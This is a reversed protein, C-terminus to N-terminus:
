RCRWTAACRCTARAAHRSAAGHTGYRPDQSVDDCRISASAASRRASSRRRARSASSRSRKARRARCRTCCSVSRRREDTANYFFAGFQAGSLQTAADTVAQVLSQCISSPRSRRAPRTSCSSSARRTACRRRPASADRHHRSLELRPRRRARRRAADELLARVRPRRRAGAPRLKRPPSSAYIEHSGRSSDSRTAQIQRSIRQLLRRHDGAAM